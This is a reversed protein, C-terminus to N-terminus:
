LDHRTRWDPPPAREARAILEHAPIGLAAAVDVVETFGFDRSGSLARGLSWVSMTSASALSQRTLGQRAMEARIEGRLSATLNTLM